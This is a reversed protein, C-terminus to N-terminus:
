GPSTGVGVTAWLPGDVGLECSCDNGGWPQAAVRLRRAQHHQMEVPVADSGLAASFARHGEAMVRHVALASRSRPERDRRTRCLLRARPRAARGAPDAPSRRVPAMPRRLYRQAAQVDRYDLNLASDDARVGDVMQLSRYWAAVLTMAAQCVALESATASSWGDRQLRPVLLVHPRAVRRGNALMFPDRDLVLDVLAPYHAATTAPAQAPRACQAPERSPRPLGVPLRVPLWGGGGDLWEWGCRAEYYGTM